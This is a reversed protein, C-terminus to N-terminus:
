KTLELHSKMVVDFESITKALEYFNGSTSDTGAFAINQRALYLTMAAFREFVLKLRKREDFLQKDLSLDITSNSCLRNLHEKWNEFNNMHNNSHEHIKISQTLHSWDKFGAKFSNPESGFLLCCFCFVSDLKKSYILWERKIKEGNAMKKTYFSSSFSRGNTSPFQMRVQIPGTQIIKTRSQESSIALYNAPDSIDVEDKTPEVDLVFFIM